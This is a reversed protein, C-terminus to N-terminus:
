GKTEKTLYEQDEITLLSFGSINLQKNILEKRAIDDPLPIYIRKGTRRRAVNDLNWPKQSTALIKVHSEELARFYSFNFLFSNKGYIATFYEVKFDRWAILNLEPTQDARSLM